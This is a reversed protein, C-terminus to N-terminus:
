TGNSYTHILPTSITAHKGSLVVLDLIDLGMSEFIDILHTISERGKPLAEAQQAISVRGDRRGYVNGWYPGGVQMCVHMGTTERM